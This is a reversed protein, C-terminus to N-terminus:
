ESVVNQLARSMNTELLSWFRGAVGHGAISGGNLAVQCGVYAIAEAAEAITSSLDTTSMTVSFSLARFQSTLHAAAYDRAPSCEYESNLNMSQFSRNILVM